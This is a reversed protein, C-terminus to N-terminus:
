TIKFGMVLVSFNYTGDPIITLLNARLSVTIQGNAPWSVLLNERSQTPGGASSALTVPSATITSVGRCLVFTGCAANTYTGCIVLINSGTLGSGTLVATTPVGNTVTITVPYYVPPPAGNISSVNTLAGNNHNIGAVNVNNGSYGTVTDTMVGNTASLSKVLLPVYGTVRLSTNTAGLDIASYTLAFTDTSEIYSIGMYGHGYLAYTTTTDPVTTWFQGPPTDAPGALTAVQTAGIYSKIKAIQNKGTGNTLVVFYGQYFNDVASSNAALVITSTSCTGNVTGTANPADSVVDDATSTFSQYRQFLLGTDGSLAPYGNYVAFRDRAIQQTSAIETYSGLAKFKGNIILDTNITTPASSSLVGINIPINNSNCGINIGNTLDAADISVQGAATVNIGGGTSTTNLFIANSSTGSSKLSLKSTGASSTGNVLGIVLDQGNGNSTQQITSLANTGTLTFAGNVVNTIWNKTVRTTMGGNGAVQYLADAGTGDSVSVLRIAKTATPDQIQLTFDQGSVTGAVTLNSNQSTNSSNFSFPGNTVNLTANTKSTVTWGGNPTTVNYASPSTGESNLTLSNNFMGKLSILGNHTNAQAISVMSFGGGTSQLDYGGSSNRLTMGTVTNSTLGGQSATWTLADATTGDNSIVVRSTSGGTMKLNFDQNTATTALTINSAKTATMNFSATSNFNLGGTGSTLTIGSSSGSTQLLIASPTGDSGTANVKGNTTTLLIDGTLTNRLTIGTQSTLSATGTSASMVLNTASTINCVSGSTINVPNASTTALSVTGNSSSISSNGAGSVAFPGNATSISTSNLTSNGAVSLTTGITASGAPLTLSGTASSFGTSDISAVPNNNADTVILGYLPNFVSPLIQVLGPFQHNYINNAM